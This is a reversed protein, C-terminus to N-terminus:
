RFRGILKKIKYLRERYGVEFLGVYETIPANPSFGRKFRTIGTWKKERPITSDALAVGWFDYFKYNNQKAYEIAKWQLLHPAMLQRYSFDSGGHLYYARDNFFAVLIAALFKGQFEAFLVRTMDKKGLVAAMTRYYDISHIAIGQKEKTKNLLSYLIGVDGIESSIKINMGKRQALGINYRTKQHMNSLLDESSQTIDIILTHIPQFLNNIKGLGSKVLYDEPLVDVPWSPDVRFFISQEGVSLKKIEALFENLVSEIKMQHIVEKSIVFGRPSYLFNLGFKKHQIILSAMLLKGDSELGIRWLKHGINKKFNGWQWSQLLGGDFANEKIFDDWVDRENDQFYKINM